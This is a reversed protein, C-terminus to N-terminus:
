SGLFFIPLAILALAFAVGVVVIFVRMPQDRLLALFTPATGDRKAAAYAERANRSRMDQYQAMLQRAQAFQADQTIWIGGHSIGWRNPRTEYFVIAHENLLARVEDAEDDPVQYLNLLLNAM